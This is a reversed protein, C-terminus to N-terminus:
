RPAEAAVLTEFGVRARGGDAADWTVEVAVRFLGDGAVTVSETAAAGPLEGPALGEVAFARAGVVPAAARLSEVRSTAVHAAVTEEHSRVIARIQTPGSWVATTAIAALIAGAVIVEM